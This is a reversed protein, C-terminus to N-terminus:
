FEDDDSGSNDFDFDNKEKKCCINTQRVVWDWKWVCQFIKDSFIKSVNTQKLRKKILSICKQKSRMEKLERSKITHMTEIDVITVTDDYNGTFILEPIEEIVFDGPNTLNTLNILNSYQKVVKKKERTNLNPYVKELYTEIFEKEQKAKNLLDDKKKIDTACDKKGRMYHYDILSPIADKQCNKIQKIKLNSTITCDLLRDRIENGCRRLSLVKDFQKADLYSLIQNFANPSLLVDGDILEYPADILELLENIESRQESDEPIQLWSLVNKNLSINRIQNGIKIKNNTKKEKIDLIQESVLKKIQEATGYGNKVLDKVIREEIRDEDAVLELDDILQILNNTIFETIDENQGCRIISYGCAIIIQERNIDLDMNDFEDHQTEDFEIALQLEPICIDLRPGKTTSIQIKGLKKLLEYEVEFSYNPYNKQFFKYISYTFVYQKSLKIGIQSFLIKLGKHEIIEILGFVELLDCVKFKRVDNQELLINKANSLLIYEKNNFIKKHDKDLDKYKVESHKCFKYCEIYMYNHVDIHIDHRSLDEKELLYKELKEKIIEM